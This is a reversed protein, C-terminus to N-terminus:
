SCIAGFRHICRRLIRGITTFCGFMTGDNPRSSCSSMAPSRAWPRASRFSNTGPTARPSRQDYIDKLVRLSELARWGRAGPEPWRPSSMPELRTISAHGPWSPEAITIPIELHLDHVSALLRIPEGIPPLSEFNWHFDYSGDVGGFGGGSEVPLDGSADLAKLRFTPMGPRVSAGVLRGRVTWADPYVDVSAIGMEVDSNGVMGLVPVSTPPHDTM